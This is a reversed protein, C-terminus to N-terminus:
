NMLERNFRKKECDDKTMGNEILGNIIRNGFRQSSSRTSISLRQLSSFAMKNIRTGSKRGTGALQNNLCKQQFNRKIIKKIGFTLGCCRDRAM